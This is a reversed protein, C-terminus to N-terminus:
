VHSCILEMNGNFKFYGFNHPLIFHDGKKLSYEKNDKTLKGSGDIVSYLSFPTDHAFRCEGFIDLKYVSFFENSIFTTYNFNSKKITKFDCVTDIYPVTTVDISKNINLERKNGNSDIRDYDYVRYTTDSNQQTELVLTGKCLAHITGSPVYFFDGKKIKIRRLLTDWKNNSIMTALEEKSKANHGLIMEADKDCDIIYWCESKGLEGNENVKAYDDNPHVQVSLNDNADLIKTLLPFKNGPINGFLDKNENWLKSLTKGAYKGNSVVCDGNKHSSIAWCEGTNDSPIEYNFKDRLATGGWIRYMFLPKLFLPEM